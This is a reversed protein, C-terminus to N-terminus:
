PVVEWKVNKTLVTDNFLEVRWEIDAPTGPQLMLHADPCLVVVNGQATLSPPNCQTPLLMGGKSAQVSRVQSGNALVLAADFRQQPAFSSSAPSVVLADGGSEVQVIDLGVNYWNGNLEGSFYVTKYSFDALNPAVAPLADTTPARGNMDSFTIDLAMVSAGNALPKNGPSIINMSSYYGPADPAHVLIRFTWFPVTNDSEFVLSGVNFRANAQSPTQLYEGDNPEWRQDPVTTEYTYSGTVTQGVVAQGGLVGAPDYVYNIRATVNVTLPQASVAGLHLVFMLLGCIVYSVRKM